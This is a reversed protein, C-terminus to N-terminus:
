IREQYYASPRTKLEIGNVYATSCQQDSGMRITIRHKTMSLTAFGKAKLSEETAQPKRLM